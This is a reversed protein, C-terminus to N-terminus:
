MFGSKLIGQGHAVWNLDIAGRTDSVKSRTLTKSVGLSAVKERAGFQKEFDHPSSYGLTSHLRDRNYFMAIDQLIDQQAEQRTQDHRWPVRDQKLRGFFHEVVAKDWCDGQRSMSGRVGHTGLVRRFAHSAYQAGRDSHHILGAQPRRHWLAMKFADCVLRAQLRARMSWGVVKRSCLDIVVALYFWGEQTWVSTLDAAYVHDPHSVSFQRQRVNAFGPPTHHSTTTVNYEKRWRVAMGTARMLQRVTHRSVPYGLGTLANKLRRSGDSHASLEDNAKIWALMARHVGDERKNAM